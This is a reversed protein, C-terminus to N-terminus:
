KGNEVGKLNDVIIFEEKRENERVIVNGIFNDGRLFIPLWKQDSEWMEDYPIENLNFWKPAMEETEVLEGEFSSIKYVHTELIKEGNQDDFTIIGRKEFDKAVLGSEEQMERIMAQDITENESKKGGYGNWKGVGHGRKKMALLINKGDEIISITTLVKL